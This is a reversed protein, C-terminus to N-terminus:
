RSLSSTTLASFDDSAAKVNAWIVQVGRRGCTGAVEWKRFHADRNKRFHANSLEAIGRGNEPFEIPSGFSRVRGLASPARMESIRTAFKPFRGRNACFHGIRAPVFRFLACKRFGGGLMTLWPHFCGRKQTRCQLDCRVIEPSLSM